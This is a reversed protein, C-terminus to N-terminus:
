GMGPKKSPMPMGSMGGMLSGASSAMGMLGSLGSAFDGPHSTQQQQELQNNSQGQMAKLYGVNQDVMDQNRQHEAGLSQGIAGQAQGGLTGIYGRLSNLKEQNMAMRKQAIDTQLRALQENKNGLSNSFAQGAVGSSSLGRDALAQALSQENEGFMRAINGSAQGYAEYDEPQLSYGKGSLDKEQGLASNLAGSQGFLGSYLPNSQIEGTARGLTNAGAGKMGEKIRAQLDQIEMDGPLLSSFVNGVDHGGEQKNLEGGLMNIPNLSKLAGGIGGDFLGM